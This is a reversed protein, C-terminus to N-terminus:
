ASRDTKANHKPTNDKSLLNEIDQINREIPKLTCNELYLESLPSANASHLHAVPSQGPAESEELQRYARSVINAQQRQSYQATMLYSFIKRM